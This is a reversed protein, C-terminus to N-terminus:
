IREVVRERRKARSFKLVERRCEEHTLGESEFRDFLAKEERTLHIGECALSAEGETRRQKAAALEADNLRYKAAVPRDM